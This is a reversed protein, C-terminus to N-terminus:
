ASSRRADSPCPFDPDPPAQVPSQSLLVSFAEDKYREALCGTVVLRKLSGSAKLAGLELITDIAEEKASQIFGCTNVIAIDAEAPNTSLTYGAEKILALMRESDVLNKACGLSVMSVVM